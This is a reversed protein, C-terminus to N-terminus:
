IGAVVPLASTPPNSTKSWGSSALRAGAVQGLRRREVGLHGHAFVQHEDRADLADGGLRLARLDVRRHLLRADGVHGAAVAALERLAVALADAQGLRDEVVRVHQDEVLRGGAEVRLLDHLGAVQDLAERAVM